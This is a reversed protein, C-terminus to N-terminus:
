IIYMLSSAVVVMYHTYLIYIYILPGSSECGCETHTPVQARSGIIKHVNAARLYIYTHIYRRAYELLFSSILISFSLLLIYLLIYLTLHPPRFLKLSSYDTLAPSVRLTYFSRCFIGHDKLTYTFRITIIVPPLNFFFIVFVDVSRDSRVTSGECKDTAIGPM